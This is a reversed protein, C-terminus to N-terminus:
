ALIEPHRAAAVAEEPWDSVTILTQLDRETHRTGYEAWVEPAGAEKAMVIDRLLNDGVVIVETPVIGMAGCAQWIVRPDPKRLDPALGIFRPPGNPPASGRSVHTFDTHEPVPIDPRAILSDIAESLGLADIRHEAHWHTADTLAVIEIGASRIESLGERVGPYPKLLRRRTTKFAEVAPWYRRAIEHGSRGPNLRRLSPLEQIWFGYEVTRHRAFVARAEAVILGAEIGSTLSLIETTARFSAAFYSVWDYLTNDLDLFIARAEAM